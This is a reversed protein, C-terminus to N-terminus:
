IGKILGRYEEPITFDANPGSWDASGLYAGIHFIEGCIECELTGRVTVSFGTDSTSEMIDVLRGTVKRVLQYSGAKFPESLTLEDGLDPWSQSKSHIVHIYQNSKARKQASLELRCCHGKAAKSLNADKKLAEQPINVNWKIPNGEYVDHVIYDMAEKLTDFSAVYSGLANERSGYEINIYGKRVQYTKNCNKISRSKSM